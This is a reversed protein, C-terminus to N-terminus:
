KSFLPMREDSLLKRELLPELELPPLELELPPLELELLPLELELLPLELELPPEPEPPLEVLSSILSMCPFVLSRWLLM